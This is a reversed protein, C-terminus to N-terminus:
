VNIEGGRFYIYMRVRGDADSKIITKEVFSMGNYKSHEIKILQSHHIWPVGLTEIEFLDGDEISADTEACCEYRADLEGQECETSASPILIASVTVLLFIRKKM